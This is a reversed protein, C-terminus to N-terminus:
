GVRASLAVVSGVAYRARAICRACIALTPGSVIRTGSATCLSCAGVGIPRPIALGRRRELEAITAEAREPRRARLARSADALLMDADPLRSGFLEEDAFREHYADLCLNCMMAPRGAGPPTRDVPHRYGELTFRPEPRGEIRRLGVLRSAQLLTRACFSCRFAAVRERDFRGKGGADLGDDFWRWDRMSPDPAERCWREVERLLRLARDPFAERFAADLEGLLEERLM